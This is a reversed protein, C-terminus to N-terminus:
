GGDKKFSPWAPPEGGTRDQGKIVRSTPCVRQATVVKKEVREIWATFDDLYDLIEQQKEVPVKRGRIARDLFISPKRM